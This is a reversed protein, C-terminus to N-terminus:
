PLTKHFHPKVNARMVGVAYSGCLVWRWPDVHRGFPHLYDHLRGACLVWRMLSEWLVGAYSKAYSKGYVGARM